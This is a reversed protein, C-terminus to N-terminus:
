EVVEVEAIPSVWYIRGTKVETCKFRKRMQVGKKFVKGNSIRFLSNIPIDELHLTEDTDKDYTKLVRSLQVDTCSSAAPNHIYEKLAIIVDPPFISHHLLPHLLLKFEKKWEKGHPNVMNKHLLWTKLHAVEHTFTILFAYKNMDHNITIRHGAGHFPPRYDAFKTLRSKTIKVKIKHQLIWDAVITVSDSPIYKALIEHISASAM